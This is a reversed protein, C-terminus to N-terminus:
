SEKWTKCSTKVHQLSNILEKKKETWDCILKKIQTYKKPKMENM